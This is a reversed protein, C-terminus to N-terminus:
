LSQLFSQIDGQVWPGSGVVKKIIKFKRNVIFTEPLRLVNFHTSSIERKQDLSILIRQQKILEKSQKFKSLFKEIDRTSDDSSIAVLRADPMSAIIKLMAPFEEMCPGCWSAWFNLIIIKGKFDQINKVEGNLTTFKFSPVSMQVSLSEDVGKSITSSNPITNSDRYYGIAFILLAAVIIIFFNKM